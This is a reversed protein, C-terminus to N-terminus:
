FINNNNDHHLNEKIVVKKMSTQVIEIPQLLKRHYLEIAVLNAYYNFEEEFAVDNALLPKGNKNEILIPSATKFTIVDTFQRPKLLLRKSKLELEYGKYTYVDMRRSGNMLYM